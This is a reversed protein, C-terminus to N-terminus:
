LLAILEVARTTPQLRAEHGMSDHWGVCEMSCTGNTKISETAQMMWSPPCSSGQAFQSKTKAEATVAKDVAWQEKLVKGKDKCDNSM